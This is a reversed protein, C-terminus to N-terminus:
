FLKPLRLRVGLGKRKQPAEPPKAPDDVVEAPAEVETVPDVEPEPEPFAPKQNLLKQAWKPIQEEAEDPETEAPEPESKSRPAM